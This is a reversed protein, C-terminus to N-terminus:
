KHICLFYIKEKRKKNYFDTGTECKNLLKKGIVELRKNIQCRKKRRILDKFGRKETGRYSSIYIFTAYQLTWSDLLMNPFHHQVYIRLGSDRVL